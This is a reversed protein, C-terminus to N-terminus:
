LKKPNADSPSEDTLVATDSNWSGTILAECNILSRNEPLCSSFLFCLRSSSCFLRSRRKGLSPAAIAASTPPAAIDDEGSDFCSM